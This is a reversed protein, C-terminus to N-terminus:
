GRGRRSCRRRAGARCPGRRSGANARVGVGLDVRDVRRARERVRLDGRDDDRLVELRQTQGPHRGDGVVRLGHECAVLDAEVELLDGEDDREVRVRRLVRQLEDLDVVVHQRRDDVAALRKVRVGRQDAVVLDTLGVVERARHPLGAVLRDTVADEGLGVDDGLLRDEIRTRMRAGHLRAAHDGVHVRVRALQVDVVGVLRRVGVARHVRLNRTQGLLVDADHAVVDAAAEAVLHRDVRAVDARDGTRDDGASRHLPHFVARLVEGRGPESAVVEHVALHAGLAALDGPQADVRDGVVAREVRGSLGRLERGPEEVDDRPGVVELARVALDLGHVRVLSRAADGVPAGEADGLGDVEDLPHDILERHLHPDIRDLQPHLAEDPGILEGVLRRGAPDVVRAIVM